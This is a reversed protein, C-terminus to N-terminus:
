WAITFSPESNNVDVRFGFGVLKDAPYRDRFVGSLKLSSINPKGYCVRLEDIIEDITWQKHPFVGGNMAILKRELRLQSETM